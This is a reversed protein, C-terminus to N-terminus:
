NLMRNMDVCFTRISIASKRGSLELTSFIKADHEIM